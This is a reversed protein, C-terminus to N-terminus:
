IILKIKFTFILNAIKVLNRFFSFRRIWKPIKAASPRKYLQLEDPKLVEYAQMSTIKTIENANAAM